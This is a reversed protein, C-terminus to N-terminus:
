VAEPVRMVQMNASEALYAPPPVLEVSLILVLRALPVHRQEQPPRISCGCSKCNILGKGDAYKGTCSVCDSGSTALSVLLAVQCSTADSSSGTGAQCLNCKDVGSIGVTGSARGKSVKSLRNQGQKMHAKIVHPALALRVNQLM